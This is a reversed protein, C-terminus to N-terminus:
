NGILRKFSRSLADERGDIELSLPYDNWWPGAAWGCGSLGHHKMEVLMRDLLINWAPDDVPVGFEGIFGRVRNRECWRVFPLLRTQPRFSIEPDLHREKEFTMAYKGSADHDLYCHAEYITKHAPDHIWADRGNASEFREASSWDDGAILVWTRQDIKRISDVARQSIASWDSTGMDHPENMIGYAVVTDNAHFHTALRRWLDAFHGSSVPVHDGRREDIVVEDPGRDTHVCYRGYNHLDIIAVSGSRGILDILENLRLLERKEIPQNLVPQLREWRVPIRLLRIGNRTLPDVTRQDPYVYERDVHGVNVNSFGSGTGFEAGAISVGFGDPFEKSTNSVFPSAALPESSPESPASETRSWGMLVTPVLLAVTLFPFSSRGKTKSNNKLNM